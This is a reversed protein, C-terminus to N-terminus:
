QNRENEELEICITKSDIPVGYKQDYMQWMWFRKLKLEKGYLTVRVKDTMRIQPLQHWFVKPEESM